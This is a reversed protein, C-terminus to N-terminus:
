NSTRKTANTANNSDSATARPGVTSMVPPKVNTPPDVADPLAEPLDQSPNQNRAESKSRQLSRIPDDHATGLNSQETSARAGDGDQALKEM